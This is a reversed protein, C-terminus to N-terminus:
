SFAGMASKTEMEQVQVRSRTQRLEEALVTMIQSYEHWRKFQQVRVREHQEAQIRTQQRMDEMELGMMDLRRITDAKFGGLDQVM